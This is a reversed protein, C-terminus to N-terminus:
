SSGYCTTSHLLFAHVLHLLVKWAQHLISHGRPSNALRHRAARRGPVQPSRPSVKQLDSLGPLRAAPQGRLGDHPQAHASTRRIGPQSVARTTGTLTFPKSHRERRVGPHSTRDMVHQRGHLVHLAARAGNTHM